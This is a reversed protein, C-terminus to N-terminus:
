IEVFGVGSILGDKSIKLYVFFHDLYQFKWVPQFSILKEDSVAKEIM